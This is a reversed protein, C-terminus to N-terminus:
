LHAEPGGSQHDELAAGSRAPAVTQQQQQQQGHAFSDTPQQQQQQQEAAWTQAGHLQPQQQQQQQQPLPPPLPPQQQQQQQLQQQHPLPRPLDLPMPPPPVELAYADSSDAVGAPILGSSSHRQITDEILGWPAAGKLKAAQPSYPQQQKNACGEEQSGGGGAADFWRSVATPHPGAQGLRSSSHTFHSLPTAMALCPNLPVKKSSGNNGGQGDSSLQMSALMHEDAVRATCCMRMARLTHQHRGGKARSSGTSGGGSGSSNSSNASVRHRNAMIYDYTTMGKWLLVMHLLWLEGLPYLAALVLVLYLAVAAAYGKLDVYTPYSALALQAAAPDIFCRTFLYLGVGLQLSLIGCMSTLLSIFPRYNHSGICNNVWKCHHDFGDICKNCERCHKSHRHVYRQLVAAV